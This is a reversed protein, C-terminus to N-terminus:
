TRILLFRRIKEELRAIQNEADVPDCDRRVELQWDLLAITARMVEADVEHKGSSVALLVM